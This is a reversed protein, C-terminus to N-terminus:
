KMIEGVDFPTSKVTKKKRLTELIKVRLMKPRCIRAARKAGVALNTINNAIHSLFFSLFPFRSRKAYFKCYSFKRAHM